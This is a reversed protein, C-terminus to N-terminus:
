GMQANQITISLNALEMWADRSISFKGQGDIIIDDAVTIDDALNLATIDCNLIIKNGSAVTALAAAFDDSNNVVTGEIVTYWDSDKIVSYGDPVTIEGANDTAPNFKYFSGGKVIIKAKARDADLINLTREPSVAKFTGGNIEVTASGTVYILDCVPDSAPVGVQRFDGGNIIVHGTGGAKVAMATKAGNGQSYVAYVDANITVTAGEVQVAGYGGNAQINETLEYTEYTSSKPKFIVPAKADYTNDFSDEEVTAQTAFVEVGLRYVYSAKTGANAENGVETPMYIVLAMADSTEGAALIPMGDTFPKLKSMTDATAEVAAWAADRSALKESVAATGMKLYDGINYTEGAKNIGNAFGVNSNLGITYKLALTGNNKVRLYVVETVGPEWLTNDDFLKTRSTATEWTNMDYSYELEVDLNGAQIKNVGTSATDTFWAFTTGILMAVCMFTALVSLLLARKVSKKDTM